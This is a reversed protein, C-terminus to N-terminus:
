QNNRNHLRCFIQLAAEYDMRKPGVSVLTVRTGDVLYSSRVVALHESRTVPSKKGIFVRVGEADSEGTERMRDDLAEFDQIISTVERKSELDLHDFLEELGDKYVPGNSEALVSLTGLQRALMDLLTGWEQGAFVNSFRVPAPALLEREERELIRQAFFELGRNSPVRGASYHPQDLYGDDTLATLEIRIMAPKIGFDYREFLQSSSVPEGSRIFERVVAELIAGTREHM